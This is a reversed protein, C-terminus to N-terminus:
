EDWREKEDKRCREPDLEKMQLILITIQGLTQHNNQPELLMVCILIPFM